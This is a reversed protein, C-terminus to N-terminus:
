EEDVDFSIMGSSVVALISLARRIHDTPTAVEGLENRFRLEILDNEIDQVERDASEKTLLEVIVPRAEVPIGDVVLTPTTIAGPETTPDYDLTHVIEEDFKYNFELKYDQINGEDDIHYELVQEREILIESMDDEDQLDDEADDEDDSGFIERLVHPPIEEEEIEQSISSRVMYLEADEHRDPKFGNFVVTHTLVIPEVSGLEKGIEDTVMRELRAYRISRSHWRSDTLHDAFDRCADALGENSVLYNPVQPSRESHQM